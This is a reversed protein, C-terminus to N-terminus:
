VKACSTELLPQRVTAGKLETCAYTYVLFGPVTDTKVRANSTPSHRAESWPRKIGVSCSPPHTAYKYCYLLHAM